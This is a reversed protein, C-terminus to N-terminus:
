NAPRQADAIVVHPINVFASRWDTAYMLSFALLEDPRYFALVRHFAHMATTFGYNFATHIDALNRLPQASVGKSKFKLQDKYSASHTVQSAQQYYIVYEPLRQLERAIDKISRKGLVKYWEPEHKMGKQKKFADFAANIGVYEPRALIREVNAVHKVGDASLGPQNTAIDIGIKGIEKLFDSSELTAKQARLGWVREKRIDGVYYYNAKKEGDSVLLWELYISAEFAVRAPVFSAHVAGARLLVEAADLMSAFQKLFGFCVMLDRMQKGSSNFARPILNSAYNVMETLLNLQPTYHQAVFEAAEKRNHLVPHPPESM